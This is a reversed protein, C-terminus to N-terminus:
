FIRVLVGNLVGAILFASTNILLAMMLAKKAGLERIMAMINALCPVFMTTLTVAVICQVYNLQGKEILNIILAAAAEHRVMCLILADTMSLPLGLFGEMVPSIVRKLADLLGIRDVVFLAVAAYIFVPVAEQLFWFLRYYTKKLVAKPNPLRMRPLEQIFDSKEEQKLMYNLALGAAIEVSALVGFAVMFATVGMRGLISMNLGMQAACPIAFAILYISIYRERQSRLSKTTLTAMTKCGFGLVLPMIASGSLGVKEFLRRTLVCLNPIYGSDELTNYALFFVSLIPLVTLFANALGLSLVGYDGILFDSWFGAPVVKEIWGSVPVWITGDMWGAIKNAVNVVLLFMIFVIGGLIPIGWVPHRCLTAATQSFEDLTVKQRRVCEATVEDVWENRRRNVFSGLNGRFSKRGEDSAAALQAATERGYRKAIYDPLFPDKVLFLTALKRRYAIDEPLKAAVGAIAQEVTDGYRIVSRGRVARRVADLLMRCGMRNTAINEVVPVGLQRSFAASDIWVGRRATEDVANFSIVLPLGMELLDATLCLSQKLRNADICQIVIDPKESLLMDRVVLEEESHIYLCHLGPTDIVEYDERAFRCEGRKSEVTTFPYNGVLTYEGTLDNFVHSKGTNPLGLIFIKKKRDPSRKGEM